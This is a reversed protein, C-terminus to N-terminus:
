WASASSTNIVHVGSYLQGHVRRFAYHSTLNDAHASRLLPVSVRWRRGRRERGPGLDSSFKKSHSASIEHTDEEEELELNEDETDRARGRELPGSSLGNSPPTNTVSSM